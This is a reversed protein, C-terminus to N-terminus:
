QQKFNVEDCMAALRLCMAATQIAESRINKLRKPTKDWFIAQELELFEERIVAMAEHFSHFPGHIAESRRIETKANETVNDILRERTSKEM